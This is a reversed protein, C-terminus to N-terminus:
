LAMAVFVVHYWCLFLYSSWHILISSGSRLGHMCLWNIKRLPAWFVRHLFSLRKSSMMDLLVSVLDREVQVLILEFHIL